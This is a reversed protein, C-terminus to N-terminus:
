ESVGNSGAAGVEGFLPEPSNNNGCAGPAGAEGGRGPATFRNFLVKHLEKENIYDSDKTIILENGAAGVGGNGGRGNKKYAFVTDITLVNSRAGAHRPDQVGGCRRKPAQDARIERDIVSEPYQWSRGNVSNEVSSKGYCGAQGAMRGLVWGTLLAYGEDVGGRCYPSDFGQSGNGGQGGVSYLLPISKIEQVQQLEITGARSGNSGTAQQEPNVISSHNLTFKGFCGVYSAPQPYNCYYNGPNINAQHVMHRTPHTGSNSDYEKSVTEGKLGSTDIWLEHVESVNSLTVNKGPAYIMALPSMKLKGNFIIMDKEIFYIGPKTFTINCSSSDASSSCLNIEIKSAKENEEVAGRLGEKGHLSRMSSRGDVEKDKYEKNVISDMTLSKNFKFNLTEVLDRRIEEYLPILENSPDEVPQYNSFNKYEIFHKKFEVKYAGLQFLYAQRQRAPLNIILGDEEETPTSATFIGARDEIGKEVQLLYDNSNMAFPYLKESVDRKTLMLGKNYYIATYPHTILQTIKDKTLDDGNLISTYHSRKVGYNCYRVGYSTNGIRHTLLFMLKHMKEEFAEIYTNKNFNAEWHRRPLDFLTNYLDIAKFAKKTLRKESKPHGLSCIGFQTHEKVSDLMTKTILVDAPNKVLQTLANQYLEQDKLSYGRQLYVSSLLPSLLKAMLQDPFINKYLHSRFFITSSSKSEDIYHEIRKRIYEAIKPEVKKIDEDSYLEEIMSIIVREHRDSITAVGAIMADIPRVSTSDFMLSKDEIKIGTMAGVAQYPNVTILKALRKGFERAKKNTLRISVNQNEESVESLKSELVLLSEIQSDTASKFDSMQQQWFELVEKKEEPEKEECDALECKAQDKLDTTTEVEVEVIEKVKVEKTCSLGLVLALVILLMKNTVNIRSESKM